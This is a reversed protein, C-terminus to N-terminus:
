TARSSSPAGSRETPTRATRCRRGAPFRSWGWSVAATLLRLQVTAQPVGAPPSNLLAVRIASNEEERFASVTVSAHTECRLSWDDGLLGRIIAEFLQDNVDAQEREIDFASYVARGSGFSSEVLVPVDTDEWPPFSHISAWAHDALNGPKPHAYPLTLTALVQAAPEAHLRLLGGGLSSEYPNASLYRQPDFWAAADPTAPRAYVMGCEEESDLHVGLVDALMFDDHRVGRTEVLSTYRSAYVRGGRRVYDRIAAVEADSLRVVNPLVLVRYRDLESLQKRTIVGFAVHARQLIRCAGRVALLHPYTGRGPRPGTLPTGNEAFDMKSDSSFYVAVDELAEGGLYPELTVLTEFVEGVREYVGPNATGLPDVADIFMFAASEAAAANVQARMHESSKLRVHEHTGTTCFTMYEVPRTQPSLNNMLKTVVLQEVADGYLDQRPLRQARHRRVPSRSDLEGAGPAFNHYVAIGPRAARIRDTILGTVSLWRKRATQFECWEPATWDITEPIERGSESRHRDRCRACGCVGPWFTMDCFACGFTTAESCTPSRTPSTRGTARTTPVACGTVTARRPRRRNRPGFLEVSWEPHTEVARNDYIVSYYACAAIGREQLATVTEGVIDRGAIGPHMEGVRTPWFCLGTLAKCSFMVASANARAYLDAKAIPDFERLFREDWDPIEMDILMRRWGRQYSSVAGSTGTMGAPLKSSAQVHPESRWRRQRYWKAFRSGVAQKSLM